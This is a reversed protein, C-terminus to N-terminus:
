QSDSDGEEPLSLLQEPFQSAGSTLFFKEAVGYLQGGLGKVEPVLWVTWPPLFFLLLGSALMVVIGAPYLLLGFDRRVIFSINHDLTLTLSIDDIEITDGMQVTLNESPTTESGRRVQVNYTSDGATSDPLIQFALDASPVLFYVPEDTQPLPLSLPAGPLLDVQVPMLRRPQGLNDKAEVTLVPGTGTPWILTQKFLVPQFPKLFLALAPQEARSPNFIVVARSNDFQHLEVTSDFLRSQELKHPWVTFQETDLSFRTALFATILLLAGGYFVPVGLWMWRRRWANVARPDSEPSANITFGHGILREKIQALFADPLAPLRVSHEVRQALPHQWTIGDPENKARRWSPRAFDALAVMSNLLLLALPGWLWISHFIRSIGLLYLSQGWPQVMPPLSAIWIDAPTDPTPQQPIILQLLLVVTLVALLVATTKPSRLTYWVSVTFRQFNLVFRNSQANATDM